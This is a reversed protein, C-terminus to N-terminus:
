QDGTRPEAQANKTRLQLSRERDRERERERERARKFDEQPMYPLPLVEGAGVRMLDTLARPELHASM